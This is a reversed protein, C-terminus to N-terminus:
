VACVSDGVKVMVRVTVLRTSANVNWWKRRAICSTHAGLLQNLHRPNIQTLIFSHLM